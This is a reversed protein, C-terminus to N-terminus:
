GGNSRIEHVNINNNKRQEQLIRYSTSMESSSVVLKLNFNLLLQIDLLLIDYKMEILSGVTEKEDWTWTKKEM